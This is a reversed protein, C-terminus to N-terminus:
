SSDAQKVSKGNSIVTFSFLYYFIIRRYYFNKKYSILMINPFSKALKLKSYKFCKIRIISNIHGCFLYILISVHIVHSAYPFQYNSDGNQQLFILIVM